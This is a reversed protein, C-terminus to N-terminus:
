FILCLVILAAPAVLGYMLWERATFDESMYDKMMM